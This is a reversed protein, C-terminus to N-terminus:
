GADAQALEEAVKRKGRLHLQQPRSLMVAIRLAFAETVDTTTGFCASLFTPAVLGRLVVWKCWGSKVGKAHILANMATMNPFAELNVLPNGGADHFSGNIGTGCAQWADDLGVHDYGLELLSTPRGDVLRSRDTLANAQALM